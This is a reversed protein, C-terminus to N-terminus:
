QRRNKEPHETYYKAKNKYMDEDAYHMASRIDGGSSSYFSGVAFSVNDPDSAREKLTSVASEFKVKPCDILFIVFEDGGARYIDGSGFVEQLLIAAKKLLLDGADHGYMDNVPKLGNLDAFVVGLPTGAFETGSVIENVRANMANRNKVGTLLDTYSIYELSEVMKFGAIESSIFFTTLELTEKIRMTNRTDFNTAWIFGIVEKNHFLPFIVVSAVNSEALTLYWPNNIISVYDMDEKDKIIFCDSDGIMDIWSFVIDYFNVYRTVRKITSNEAISTALISCTGASQDMLMITCVEADCILRIDRIVEKITERFNDTGRLKICTRLVDELTKGSLTSVIGIDEVHGPKVSYTCYCLDGDEHDVPMVIIDYWIGLKNQHVFTHIPNKGVASRFCLDEFGPDRPVYSEYPSDPIFEKGYNVPIDQEPAAAPRGIFEIYKENCAAFCIRGYGGGTRKEVSVVCTATYFSDALEQFDM